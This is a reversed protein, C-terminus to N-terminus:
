RPLPEFDPEATLLALLMDNTAAIKGAVVAATSGDPLILTRSTYVTDRFVPVVSQGEIPQSDTVLSVAPAEDTPQANTKKTTM